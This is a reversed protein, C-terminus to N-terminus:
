YSLHKATRWAVVKCTNFSHWHMVTKLARHQGKGLLLGKLSSLLNLNILLTQELLVVWQHRRWLCRTATCTIVQVALVEMFQPAAWWFQHIIWHPLTILRHSPQSTRQSNFHNNSSSCKSKCSCSNYSSRFLSSSNSRSNNNNLPQKPKDWSAQLHGGKCEWLQNHLYKLWM